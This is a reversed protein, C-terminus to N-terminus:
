TRDSGFLTPASYSDVLADTATIRIPVSWHLPWGPLSILSAELLAYILDPKRLYAGFSESGTHMHAPCSAALVPRLLPVVGSFDIIESERATSVGMDFSIDVTAANPSLSFHIPSSDPQSLAIRTEHATM